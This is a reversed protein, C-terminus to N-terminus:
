HCRPRRQALRDSPMPCMSAMRQGFESFGCAKLPGVTRVPGTRAGSITEVGGGRKVEDVDHTASGKGHAGTAV